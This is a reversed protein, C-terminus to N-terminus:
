EAERVSRGSASRRTLTPSKAPVQYRAAPHYHSPPLAKPLSPPRWSGKYNENQLWHAFPRMQTFDRPVQSKDYTKLENKLRYSICPFCAQPLNAGPRSQAQQNQILLPVSLRHAVRGLHAEASHGGIPISDCRMSSLWIRAEEM